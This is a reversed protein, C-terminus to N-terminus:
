LSSVSHHTFPTLVAEWPGAFGGSTHRCRCSLKRLWSTVCVTNMSLLRIPNAPTHGCLYTPAHLSPASSEFVLYPLFPTSCSPPSPPPSVMFEQPAAFEVSGRCLEPRQDADRRRGDPGVGEAYEMPTATVASCFNCTFSKGYDNFQMFPNIYAKCKSCRLPGSAGM